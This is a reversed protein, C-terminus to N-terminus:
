LNHRARELQPLVAVKEAETKLLDTVAKSRKDFEGQFKNPDLKGQENAFEPKINGAEDSPKLANFLEVRKELVRLRDKEQKALRDNAAAEKAKRQQVQEELQTFFDAFERLRQQEGETHAFIPSNNVFGRKAQQERAAREADVQARVRETADEKVKRLAENALQRGKDIDEDKNSSLL